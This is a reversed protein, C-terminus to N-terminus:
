NCTIRTVLFDLTQGCWIEATGHSLRSFICIPLGRKLTNTRTLVALNQVETTVTTTVDGLNTQVGTHEVVRYGGGPFVRDMYSKLLPDLKEHGNPEILWVPGTRGFLIINTHTPENKENLHVGLEVAMYQFQVTCKSRSHEVAAKITMGRKSSPDWVTRETISSNLSPLHPMCLASMNRINLYKRLVDLFITSKFMDAMPSLVDSALSNTILATFTQQLQQLWQLREYSMNEVDANFEAVVGGTGYKYQSIPNFVPNYFSLLEKNIQDDEMGTVDASMVRELEKMATVRQAEAYLM